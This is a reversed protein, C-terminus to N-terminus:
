NKSHNPKDGPYWHSVKWKSVSRHIHRWPRRLQLMEWHTVMPWEWHWVWHGLGLPFNQRWGPLLSPKAALCCRTRKSFLLPRRCQAQAPESENSSRQPGFIWANLTAPWTEICGWSCCREVVPASQFSTLTLHCQLIEFSASKGLNEGLHWEFKMWIKSSFFQALNAHFNLSFVPLCANNWSLPCGSSPMSAYTLKLVCFYCLIPDCRYQPKDWMAKEMLSQLWKGIWVKREM